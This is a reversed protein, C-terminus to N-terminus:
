GDPSSDDVLIPEDRSHARWSLAIFNSKGGLDGIIEGWSEYDGQYASAM